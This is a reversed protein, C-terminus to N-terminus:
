MYMFMNAKGIEIAADRIFAGTAKALKITGHELKTNFNKLKASHESLEVAGKVDLVVGLNVEVAAALKLDVIVALKVENCNGIQIDTFSGIKLEQSTGVTMEQHNGKRTTKVDVGETELIGESIIKMDKASKITLLGEFTLDSDKSTHHWPGEIFTVWQPSATINYGWGGGVELKYGGKEVNQHSDGEITRLSGGKIEQKLGGKIEEERGQSEVKITHKQGYTQEVTKEFTEKVTGTVTHIFNGGGEVLIRMPGHETIIEMDTETKARGTGDTAMHWNYEDEHPHEANGGEGDGGKGAGGGVAGMFFYTKKPETKMHMWQSGEQDEMEIRNKGGTQVVNKTNNKQGVASPNIANHAVGAIVPRDPDGGLFVLHVETGKRLPFHFGEIDGGHPQLMRVWMSANGDELDSEDFFIKVKYRGHADIEAYTVGDEADIVAEETGYIRPVPTVRPARYQVDAPIATVSVHYVDKRGVNAVREFGSSESSQNGVHEITTVLYDTNFTSRPHESLTFTYGASLKHARGEGTYIMQKALLEEARLKALRKGESPSTFGEGYVHIEGQGTQSVPATGSVDLKPKLYDYDKLAVKTPLTTRRCVFTDLSESSAIASLQGGLQAIYRLPADRLSKHTSLDDTIVLKEQGDGQEFFYYLGEREM